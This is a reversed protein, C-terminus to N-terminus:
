FKRDYDEFIPVGHENGIFSSILKLSKFTSNVM